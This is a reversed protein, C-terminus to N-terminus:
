KMLAPMTLQGTKTTVKSLIGHSDIHSWTVGGTWRQGKNIIGTHEGTVDLPEWIGIVDIQRLTLEFQLAQAIAISLPTPPHDVTRIM